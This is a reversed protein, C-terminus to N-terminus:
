GYYKSNLLCEVYSCLPPPYRHPMLFCVKNAATGDLKPELGGLEM